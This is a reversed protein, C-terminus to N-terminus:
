SVGPSILKAPILASKVSKAPKAPKFGRSWEHLTCPQRPLPNYLIQTPYHILHVQLTCNCENGLFGRGEVSAQGALRIAGEGEGEGEGRGGRAENEGGCWM